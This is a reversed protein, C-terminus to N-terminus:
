PPTESADVKRRMAQLVADSPFISLGDKVIEKAKARDGISVYCFSLNEYPTPIYPFLSVARKLINIAEVRHGSRYLLEALLMYDQPSKSRLKVTRSLYDVAASDGQSSRKELERKALASL